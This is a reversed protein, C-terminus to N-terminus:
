VRTHRTTVAHVSYICVRLHAVFTALVCADCLIFTCGLVYLAAILDASVILAEGEAFDSRGLIVVLRGESASPLWDGECTLM